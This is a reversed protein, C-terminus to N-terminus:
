QFRKFRPWALALPVRLGRCVFIPRDNEYPMVYPAGFKAVIDLSACNGRWHDPDGNIHILVSGDYGRPGWFYYQDQGNLAPPLHDAQGYVDIAAAEGYNSAVIAARERDAPPLARYVQAVTEELDRWGLEDSFVQTLPAGVAAAEDPLPHLHHKDLYAALAPPSLMPLVLPALAASAAAALVMWASTLWVGLRGSAVAGIAFLAPYAPFLYYDKGRAAIILAATVVYGIALFRAPTLRQSVFPAVIGAMWLPALLANMALAQGITFALPDGTFNSHTVTHHMMVALFPWGHIAQWVLSPAAILLGTAVGIWCERMAFLKRGPTFILGVALGAIWLLIGYKAQLAVGAVAGAWILARRNGAAVARTVLYAFATWALPEFTSTTMIQTLAILAPSMAGALAAVFAAGAGGGLLRAFAATLPVLAAAALAAPVRLLWVNLGFAQTAAALLPVLPPQDAYGFAPHRGCVIYYLENRFMDYRGAFALHLALTLAALAWISADSRLSALLKSLM